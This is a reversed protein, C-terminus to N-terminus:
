EQRSEQKRSFIRLARRRVESGFASFHRLGPTSALFLGVSLFSSNLRGKALHAYVHKRTTPADEAKFAIYAAALHAWAEASKRRKRYSDALRGDAFLKELIRFRDRIRTMHLNSTKADEHHRFNALVENLHHARIGCLAVRTWYDFDMAFHFDEDLWGVSELLGRRMLFGQQPIPNHAQLILKEPSFARGQVERLNQSSEDIINVNGYVLDVEACEGLHRAARLLAFPQLTDDSNLWTVFQGSSLRWGKNIANAQGRDPESIIHAIWPRYKEIIQLSGDSSGGDIIIYEFKPYQQLLVSRITEELFPAQNLSPTM